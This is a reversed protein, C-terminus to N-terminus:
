SQWVSSARSTSVTSPSASRKPATQALRQRTLSIHTVSGINVGAMLVPLVLPRYRCCFLRYRSTRDTLRDPTRGDRRDDLGALGVDDDKLLRLHRRDDLAHRDDKEHRSKGHKVQGQVTVAREAARFASLTDVCAYDFRGRLEAELWEKRDGEKIMLKRVLSTPTLARSTDFEPRGLRYYFLRGHLNAGNVYTSLAAYHSDYVLVSRAFGGLVREIAGQWRADEPRVQLLEGVFPLASESVGIGEAIRRRMDLWEAPINSPQRRLAAVEMRASGLSKEADTKQRDLAFKLEDASATDQWAEVEQRATNVLNAFDHPSEPLIWELKACANEATHRKRM